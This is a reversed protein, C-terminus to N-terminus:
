RRAPSTPGASRACGPTAGCGSAARGRGPDRPHELEDPGFEFFGADLQHVLPIDLGDIWAMPETPSTRTSTSRGARRSCCTAGACRWRTGTSTPGCARAKSSSGSPARPTGTRRPPRARASTSSRPGCRRPPTRCAPCARTPWPSRGASAAVGWRSWSERASRSRAAAGVLAVRAPGRRAAAVDADPRGGATWLPILGADEFDAYLEDLLKRETQESTTDTM